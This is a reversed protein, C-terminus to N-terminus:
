GTRRGFNVSDTLDRATVREPVHDSDNVFMGVFWRGTDFSWDLPKDIDIPNVGHSISGYFMVSDGVSLRDEIELKGGGTERFYFGGTKYDIGRESMILGSVVRQNKRPDVHERLEGGGIPYKVIQLRDIQGDSLINNEFAEPANGALCKVFRWFRYVGEKFDTELDSNVNWNYFYYSHKIAYLSYKKTVDSDIIRHFNPCGDLMKYFGHSRDREYEQALSLMVERFGPPAAERVIFAVGSYLQQIIERLLNEDRDAFIKVIAKYDIAKIDTVVRPAPLSAELEGWVSKCYSFM